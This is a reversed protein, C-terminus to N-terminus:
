HHDALGTKRCVKRLVELPLYTWAVASFGIAVAMTAESGSAVRLLRFAVFAIIGPWAVSMLTTVWAAKITPYYTTCTGKRSADSAEALEQEFRNKLLVLVALAIIVTGYFWLNAGLDDMLREHVEDWDFSDPLWNEAERFAESSVLPDDSRIWLVREDIYTAYRETKAILLQETEDLEFLTDLLSNYSRIVQDLYEVRSDFVHRAAEELSEVEAAKMGSPIQQMFQKVQEDRNALQARQDDYDFLDFQTDEILKRRDYVNARLLSVDPLGTRQGRLLAGVAGSLGISDVKKQTTIFQRQIKELLLKAKELQAKATNIPATKEVAAKALDANIAADERLLPQAAIAEDRARKLAAASEEARLRNIEADLQKLQVEALAVEQTHVDRQLRVFDAAEESDYKSLENQLVPLEAEILARRIKLETTRAQTLLKPEDPPAPTTLQKDLDATRQAASLLLSRIEKRRTARSAPEGESKALAAKLETLQLDHKSREQELESLTPFSPLTPKADQLEDLRRKLSAVREQVNDAEKKYQAASTTLEDIRALGETAVKYHEAAQTKEDDSLDDSDAAAKQQAEISEVTIQEQESPQLLLATRVDQASVAGLTMLSISFAILVRM